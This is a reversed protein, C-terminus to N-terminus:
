LLKVAKSLAQLLFQGLSTLAMDALIQREIM